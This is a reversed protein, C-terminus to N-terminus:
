LFWQRCFNKSEGAKSPLQLSALERTVKYIANSSEWWWIHSGSGLVIPLAVHCARDKMQHQHFAGYWLQFCDATCPVKYSSSIWQLSAQKPQLDILLSLKKHFSDWKLEIATSKSRQSRVVQGSLKCHEIIVQLDHISSSCSNVRVDKLTSHAMSSLIFCSVAAYITAMSHHVLCFEAKGAKESCTPTDWRQRISLM